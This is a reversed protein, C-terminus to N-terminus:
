LLFLVLRPFDFRGSRSFCDLVILRLTSFCFLVPYPPPFGRKWFLFASPLCAPLCAPLCVPLTWRVGGAM